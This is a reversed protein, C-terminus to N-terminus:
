AFAPSFGLSKMNKAIRKVRESIAEDSVGLKQAIERKKMGLALMSIVQQNEPSLSAIVAQLSMHEQQEIIMDEASSVVALSEIEFGADAEEDQSAFQSEESVYSSYTRGSEIHATATWNARQLIRADSDEPQSNRLISEVMKSYIDDADFVDTSFSRAKARLKGELSAIRETLAPFNNPNIQKPSKAIRSRGRESYDAKQKLNRCDKCINQFGAGRKHFQSVTKSEKCISCTKTNM